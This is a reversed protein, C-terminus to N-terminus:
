AWDTVTGVLKTAEIALKYIRLGPPVPMAIHHDGGSMSKRSKTHSRSDNRLSFSLSVADVASAGCRSM